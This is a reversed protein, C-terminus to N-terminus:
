RASIRVNLLKSRRVLGFKRPVFRGNKLADRLTWPIEVYLLLATVISFANASFMRTRFSVGALFLKAADSFPMQQGTNSMEVVRGNKYLNCSISEPSM